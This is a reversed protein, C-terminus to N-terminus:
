AQLGKLAKWENLLAIFGGGAALGKEIFFEVKDNPIDFTTAIYQKLDLAEAEDLDDIEKKIEEKTAVIAPIQMLRPAVAWIDKPQFGDEQSKFVDMTLALVFFLMSKLNEIGMKMFIFPKYIFLYNSKAIWRGLM